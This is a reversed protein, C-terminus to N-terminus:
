KERRDSLTVGLAALMVCAVAVVMRPGAPQSLLVVGILAGVAPELTVLIGYTRASMSQLARFELVLPLVTGLLSVGLAGALDALGAAAISGEGLAVPLLLIASVWMALALGANGPFVAGTKKSLPVFAAWALATIAAYLLGLPDIGGQELSAGIDPTLLAVGLAAIGIWLFHVLRRSTAVALGLPGLFAVTSAIGLPIRELALFFPLVLAVDVLGFALILLAHRRLLRGLQPFLARPKTMVTLAVASFLSSAFATGGPGLSSFLVTALAAGLQVCVIALLMLATPPLRHLGGAAMSGPTMNGPRPAAGTEPKPGLGTNPQAIAAHM